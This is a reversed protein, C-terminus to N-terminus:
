KSTGSYISPKTQNDTSLSFALFTGKPSATLPTDSWTLRTRWFNTKSLLVVTFPLSRKIILPYLLFCSFHRQPECYSTHWILHTTDKLLEANPWSKFWNPMLRCKWFALLCSWRSVLYSSNYVFHLAVATRKCVDPFALARPGRASDLVIWAVCAVFFRCNFLVSFCRIMIYM